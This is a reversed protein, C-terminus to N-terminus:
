EELIYLPLGPAIRAELNISLRHTRILHKIVTLSDGQDLNFENDCVESIGRLTNETKAQLVVFMRIAEVTSSDIRVRDNLSQYGHLARLNQVLIEPMDQNTILHWQIGKARWYQREIEMKEFTRNGDSLSGVDKISIARYEGSKLTLLFDTTMTVPLRPHGTQPHPIGMATAIAITDELPLLPFQERIDVVLLSYDALLIFAYEHSSLLHHQRKVTDSLYRHRRGLSSVEHVTIWPEYNEKEGQGRGEKWRNADRKQSPIRSRSTM